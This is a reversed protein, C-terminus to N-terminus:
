GEQQRFRPRIAYVLALPLAGFVGTGAGIGVLQRRLLADSRGVLFGLAMLAVGVVIQWRFVAFLVRGRERRERRQAVEVRAREADFDEMSLGCRPCCRGALPVAVACGPCTAAFPQGCEGCARRRESGPNGYGCGFCVVGELRLREEKPAVYVVAGCWDCMCRDREIEGGCQPCPLRRRQGRALERESKAM